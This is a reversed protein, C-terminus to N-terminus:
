LMTLQEFFRGKLPKIVNVLQYVFVCSFVYCLCYFGSSLFIHGLAQDVMVGRSPVSLIEISDSFHDYFYGIECLRTGLRWFYPLSRMPHHTVILYHLKILQVILILLSQKFGAM